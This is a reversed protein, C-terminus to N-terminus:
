NITSDDQLANKPSSPDEEYQSSEEDKGFFPLIFFAM